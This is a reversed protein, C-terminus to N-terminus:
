LRFVLCSTARVSYKRTHSIPLPWIQRQMAPIYLGRSTLGGVSSANTELKMSKVKLNNIIMHTGAQEHRNVPMLGLSRTM